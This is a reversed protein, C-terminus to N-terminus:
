FTYALARIVGGDAKVESLIQSSRPRVLFPKETLVVGSNVSIRVGAGALMDVNPVFDSDVPSHDCIIWTRYPTFKRLIAQIQDNRLHQFVQKVIVLDGPPLPDTVADIAMFTLNDRIFMRRNREILEPVVDCAIYTRALDTLRSGVAFDGCGIEVVHSPPLTSLFRRVGSIYPEVVEPVNGSGSYFDTQQDGGWVKERYIAGFREANTQRLNNRRRRLSLLSEPVFPKIARKIYALLPRPTSGGRSRSPLTM